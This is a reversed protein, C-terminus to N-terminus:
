ATTSTFGDFAGVQDFWTKMIETSQKPLNSRKRAKGHQFVYGSPLFYPPHNSAYPTRPTDKVVPPYTHGSNAPHATMNHEHAMSPRATMEPSGLLIPTPVRNMRALPNTPGLSPTWPDNDYYSAAQSRRRTTAYTPGTPPFTRSVIRDHRLAITGPTQETVGWERVEAGRLHGREAAANEATTSQRREFPHTLMIPPPLPASHPQLSSGRRRYQDTYGHKDHLSRVCHYARDPPGFPAPPLSPSSYASQPPRPYPPELLSEIKQKKNPYLSLPKYTGADISPEQPVAQFPVGQIGPTQPPSSLSEGLVQLATLRWGYMGMQRSLSVTKLPPLSPRQTDCAQYPPSHPVFYERESRWHSEVDRSTRSGHTKMLSASHSSAPGTDFEIASDM